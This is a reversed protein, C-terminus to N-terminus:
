GIGKPHPSQCPSNEEQIKRPVTIGLYSLCFKTAEPEFVENATKCAHWNASAARKILRCLTCGTMARLDSFYRGCRVVYEHICM